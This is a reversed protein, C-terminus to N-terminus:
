QPDGSELRRRVRAREEPDLHRLDRVREAVDYEVGDDDVGPPAQELAAFYEDDTVSALNGEATALPSTDPELAVPEPGSETM